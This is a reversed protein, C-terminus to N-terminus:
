KIDCPCVQVSPDWCCVNPQPVSCIEGVWSHVSSLIYGYDPFYIPECSKFSSTHRTYTYVTCTNWAIGLHNPPFSFGPFNCMGNEGTAWVGYPTGGGSSTGTGGGTGTQQALIQSHLSIDLIGYDSYAYQLNVAMVCLMTLIGAGVLLKQKSM